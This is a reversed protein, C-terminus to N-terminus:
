TTKETAVAVSETITTSPPKPDAPKVRGLLAGAFGTLLGSVVQFTQGDNTLFKASVFLLVTFFIVMAALLYLVHDLQKLM